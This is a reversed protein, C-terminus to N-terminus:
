RGAAWRPAPWTSACARRGCRRTCSWISRTTRITASPPRTCPWSTPCASAGCRTTAGCWTACSSRWRAASSTTSTSWPRRRAAPAPHAGRLRVARVVPRLRLLPRGRQHRPARGVERAIVDALLSRGTRRHHEAAVEAERAMTAYVMSGAYIQCHPHPNSTGVVAGRNEFILVHAVGDQQQLARTRARWTTVIATMEDDTLDAMSRTPDHHYCVVEATGAARRTRYVDDGPGPEPADPSFVPCTTRSCTSAGTTPTPRRAAATGLPALANDDPVPPEAPAVIEGIWPRADRHSTFLVWQGRFPHWRLEWTVASRDCSLLPCRDRGAAARLGDATARLTIRGAGHAPRHRPCARRVHHLEHRHLGGRHGPECQGPGAARRPRRGGGRGAPRAARPAVGDADVLSLTSSPWTEPIPRSSRGTSRPTSCCRGRPPASPRHSRARSRRALRRGRAARSTRGDRVGVPLPAGRREAAPGASRGNVLLEVEDADAYVEVTM